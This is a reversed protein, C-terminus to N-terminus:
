DKSNSVLKYFSHEKFFDVVVRIKNNDLRKIYSIFLKSKPLDLDIELKILSGNELEEEIIAKPSIGILNSDKMKKLMLPTSQIVLYNFFPFKEKIENSIRNRKIICITKKKLYDIDIEQNKSNSLTTFFITDDEFIM